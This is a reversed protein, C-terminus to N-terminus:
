GTTRLGGSIANVTLLLSWLREEAQTIKEQKILDRWERIQKIQLDHLVKLGASRMVLTDNMKPRREEFGGGFILSLMEKTTHLEELIIKMFTERIASSEVLGAYSSMIEEDTSYINTEINMLVYRLFHWDFVGEQLLHFNDPNENKFRLLATGAGFWGPLNFRSQNWSFVWPIARLDKLTRKGSRRSPRSGHRSNEIIDIPTAQGYFELFYKEKLLSEYKEQSWDSLSSMFPEFSHPSKPLSKHKITTSSASAVLLELNFSANNWNAFQHAITEGQITMRLNGTLSTHPLVQMFKHTKGGGRSITGGRGHFFKLKINNSRAAQTLNKQACYLNWQSAIIGGDKNSDSYGLMAQLIPVKEGDIKARYNLSRRVLPHNIFRDLIHHSGKLDDITEFLPVVPIPCILGEEASIMLGAERAFIYVALLDSLSRTMSVILGGIADYGYKNIHEAIVRYCDVVADAEAGCKMGYLTFPRSSKLEENLFYIRKAESWASFDYDFIGATKLLQSVAADHFKSNQRIDLVALHFGFCSVLREMQFFEVEVIRKAGIKLLTERLFKLDELLEKPNKYYPSSKETGTDSPLKEIVMNMFQRWPEGPNRAICKKAIDGLELTLKELMNTLEAPVTQLTDSLSMHSALKELNSRILGIATKRFESLTEATVDATVFPHGDRDGGVWNGFTIKPFTEPKSILDSDLNLSKWAHKLRLDTLPLVNPFVNKLYHLINRRESTVDPKEIYIEGTRWLRELNLKIEERITEKESPTWMSNEKKVLLLYLERHQELITARKAETPHATLVPEVHIEHLAFAIQEGTIGKELLDELKNGWLGNIYSLGNETELKRRYQSAANEEVMNLLQFWLSLLQTLKEPYNEKFPSIASNNAGPLFDVLKEEGMEILVEKLCEIIFRLDDTIKTQM